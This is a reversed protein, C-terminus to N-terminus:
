KKPVPKDPNSIKHGSYQPLTPCITLQKRKEMSVPLSYIVYNALGFSGSNVKSYQFNLSDRHETKKLDVANWL